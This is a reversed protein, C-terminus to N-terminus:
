PDQSEQTWFNFCNFVKFMKERAVLSNDSYIKMKEETTEYKNCDSFELPVKRLNTLLNKKESFTIPKM